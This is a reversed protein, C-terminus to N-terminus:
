MKYSTRKLELQPTSGATEIKVNGAFKANGGDAIELQNAVGDEAIFFKNNGADYGVNWQDTGGEKFNITSYTTGSIGFKAEGSSKTINVDGGFTSIGANSITLRDTNAGGTITQLKIAGNNNYSARMIFNGGSEVLLQGRTATADTFIDLGTVIGPGGKSYIKGYTTLTATGTNEGIQVNGDLASTGTVELNSFSGTAEGAFTIRKWTAM